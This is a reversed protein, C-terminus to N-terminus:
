GNIQLLLWGVLFFYSLGVMTEGLNSVVVRREKIVGKEKESIPLSLNMSAYHM